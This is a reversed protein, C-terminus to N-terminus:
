RGHPGCALIRELPAPAAADRLRNIGRIMEGEEVQRDGLSLEILVRPAEERLAKHCQRVV